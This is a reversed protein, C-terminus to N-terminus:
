EHWHITHLHVGNMGSLVLKNQDFLIARYPCPYYKITEKIKGDKTIQLLRGTEYDVILWQDCTLSCCRFTIKQTCVIDPQFLWIRDLTKANRLEMHISKKFMNIVMLALNANNYVVGVIFEDRKCVLPHKRERVFEIAPFLIYEMISSACENTAVFLVTESYTCSIWDQERITDVEQISMTNENICFISNAGLVIFQGLTVSWCMDRIEGYSWVTQTVINADRDFLCLNPHQHILLHQGDCALSQFGGDPRHIAKHTHSLSSLNVDHENTKKIDIFTDNLILPHTTIKFCTEELDMISSRIQSMKSILLDIDQHTTKQANNFETLKMQIRNLEDRQQNVKENALRDLEPCKQEFFLDIKTYCDERWQELKRRSNGIIKLINLAKLCDDLINTENNFQNLHSISLKNYESFHQLCLNQQCCHCLGRSM